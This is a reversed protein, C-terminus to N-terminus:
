LSMLHSSETLITDVSIGLIHASEKVSSVRLSSLIQAGLGRQAPQPVMSVPLPHHNPRGRGRVGGAMEGGPTDTEFIVTQLWASRPSLGVGSVSVATGDPLRGTAASPFTHKQLYTPVLIKVLFHLHTCIYVTIYM